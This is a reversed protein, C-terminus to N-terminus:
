IFANSAKIITLFALNGNGSNEAGKSSFSWFNTLFSLIPEIKHMAVSGILILVPLFLKNCCKKDDLCIKSSWLIKFSVLFRASVVYKFMKKLKLDPDNQTRSQLSSMPLHLYQIKDIQLIFKNGTKTKLAPNAKQNSWNRNMAKRNSKRQQHSFRRHYTDSDEAVDVPSTFSRGRKSVVSPPVSLHRIEFIIM